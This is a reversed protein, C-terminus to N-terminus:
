PYLKPRWGTTDSVPFLHRFCFFVENYVLCHVCYTIVSKISDKRCFWSLDLKINIDLTIRNYLRNTEHIYTFLVGFDCAFRTLTIM